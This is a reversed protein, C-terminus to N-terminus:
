PQLDDRRSRLYAQEAPNTALLQYQGPRNRRLCARVITHGDNILEHDWLTRDQDPLPVLV